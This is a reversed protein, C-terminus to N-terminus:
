NSILIWSYNKDLLIPLWVKWFVFPFHSNNSVGLEPPNSPASWTSTNVKLWKIFFLNLFKEQSISDDLGNCKYTRKLGRINKMASPKVWGIRWTESSM